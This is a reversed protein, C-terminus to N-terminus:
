TTTAKSVSEGGRGATGRTLPYQALCAGWALKRNFVFATASQLSSDSRTMGTASGPLTRFREAITLPVDVEYDSCPNNSPSRLVASVNYTQLPSIPSTPATESPDNRNGTAM